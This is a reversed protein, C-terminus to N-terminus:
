SCEDLQEKGDPLLPFYNRERCVEWIRSAVTLNFHPHRDRLENETIGIDFYRALGIAVGPSRSMGAACHIILRDSWPLYEEIFNVILEAQNKDMPRLLQTDSMLDETVDEFDIDLRHVFPQPGYIRAHSSGPAEISIILDKDFFPLFRVDAFKERPVIVTEM